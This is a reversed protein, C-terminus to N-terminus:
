AFLTSPTTATCTRPMNERGKETPSFNPLIQIPEVADRERQTHIESVSKQVAM